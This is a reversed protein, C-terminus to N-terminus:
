RPPLAPAPARKNPKCALKFDIHYHEDHRVWPKKKMFTLQRQLYPGRRTAWLQPWYAPEFIVLAIGSGQAKAAQDLAYLHDAMAEFDISYEKHQAHDDFEVDYGLRNMIGTPLPVSTGQANKVPVFFDVSTGNQHTRHPQFPGGSALGTEGYVYVTQPRLTALSAYATVMIQEVKSHVYTRGVSAALTSYAAFNDGTRPLKVSREIRGRSVSGYCQSDAAFAPSGALALLTLTLLQTHHM